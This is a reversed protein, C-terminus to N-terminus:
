LEATLFLIVSTSSARKDVHHCRIAFNNGTHVCDIFDRTNESTLQM